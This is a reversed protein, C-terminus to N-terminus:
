NGIGIGIRTPNRRDEEDVARNLQQILHVLKEFDHEVSATRALDQWTNYFDRTM